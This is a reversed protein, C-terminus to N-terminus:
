LVRGLHHSSDVLGGDMMKHLDSITQKRSAETPHIVMVRQGSVIAELLWGPAGVGAEIAEMSLIPQEFEIDSMM